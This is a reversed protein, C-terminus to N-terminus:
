QENCALLPPLMSLRVSNSVEAISEMCCACSLGFGITLQGSVIELIGCPVLLPCTAMDHDAARRESAKRSSGGRSFPGVKVKAKNDISIRLISPDNAARQHAENVNDFISDTQAIKKLPQTKRVKRLSFGRRNM